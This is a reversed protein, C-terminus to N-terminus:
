KLCLSRHFPASHQSMTIPQQIVTFLVCQVPATSPSPIIRKNLQCTPAEKRWGGPTEAGRSPTGPAEPPRRATPAPPRRAATSGLTQPTSAPGAATYAGNGVAAKGDDRQAARGLSPGTSGRRGLLDKFTTTSRLRWAPPLGGLPHATKPTERGFPCAKPFPLM